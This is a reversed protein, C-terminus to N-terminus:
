LWARAAAHKKAPAVDVGCAEFGPLIVDKLTRKFISGGASSGLYGVAELERTDPEPRERSSDMVWSMTRDLMAPLEASLGETSKSRARASLFAWGVRGHDIEDELLSEVAMRASGGEMRSLMETLYVGTFTESLCCMEVVHFLNRSEARAGPYKPISPIGRFGRPVKAEGLLAVAMRRCIETHRVEDSSARTLLSLVIPDCGEAALETVLMAFAGVALHEQKMRSSWSKGARERGADDLGGLDWDDWRIPRGGLVDARRDVGAPPVGQPRPSTLKSKRKAM